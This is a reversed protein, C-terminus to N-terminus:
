KSSPQHNPRLFDLITKVPNFTIIPVEVFITNWYAMSGNWLGPLELAKLERGDQSKKTIFGADPDRYKMLDFPEGNFDRVGCVFDTPSFHTASKWIEIQAKNDSDVQAAEVVQLSINRNKDEVWFPGGGPEGENKVMGCVRIPRNLKNILFNKREESSANKIHDPIFVSLENSSFEMVESLLESDNKINHLKDLYNFITQQLEGLIGALIRKYKYTEGKLRDPVVNDINKIFIIDGNLDNLNELLAGHGGPRFLISGDKLRFPNNQMDVAITNTSPKQFSYNIDFSVDNEYKGRISEIHDQIKQEHEQSITFHITAKGKEDKCYAAAEVLHEEFATREGSDYKHFKILGKPLETYNLRDESILANVIEKFQGKQIEQEIDFGNETLVNKLDKFFAYDRIGNIFKLLKKYKENKSAEEEIKEKEIKGFKNNFNILLKFMRTAAGSAPVFKMSRGSAEVESYSKSYKEGDSNKLVKIGDGVTCPRQLKIEPIGNKFIKLQELAKTEDIGMESMQRIDNESFISGL